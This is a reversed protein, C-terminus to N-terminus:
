SAAKVPRLIIDEGEHFITYRGPRVTQFARPIEMQTQKWHYVKGKKRGRKEVERVEVRLKAALIERTLRVTTYDKPLESKWLVFRAGCECGVSTELYKRSTGHSESFFEGRVAKVIKVSRERKCFPCILKETRIELEERREFRERSFDDPITLRDATSAGPIKM